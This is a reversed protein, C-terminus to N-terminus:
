RNDWIINAFASGVSLAFLAATSVIFFVSSPNSPKM